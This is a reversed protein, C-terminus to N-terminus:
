LFTSSRRGQILGAGDWPVPQEGRGLRGLHFTPGSSTLALVPWNVGTACDKREPVVESEWLTGLYKAELKWLPPVTPRTRICTFGVIALQTCLIVVLLAGGVIVTTDFNTADSSGTVRYIPLECRKYEISRTYIGNVVEFLDPVSVLSTRVLAQGITVSGYKGGRVLAKGSMKLLIVSVTSRNRAAYLELAYQGLARELWVSNVGRDVAEWAFCTAVSESVLCQRQVGTATEDLGVLRRGSDIVSVVFGSSLTNVQAVTFAQNEISTVDPVLRCSYGGPCDTLELATTEPGYGEGNLCIISETQLKYHGKPVTYSPDFDPGTGGGVLDVAVQFYKIGDATRRSCGAFANFQREITYTGNKFWDVDLANPYALVGRVEPEQNESKTGNTGLNISLLAAICVLRLFGIVVKTVTAGSSIGAGVLPIGCPKTTVSKGSLILRRSEYAILRCGSWIVLGLIAVDGILFYAASVLGSPVTLQFM